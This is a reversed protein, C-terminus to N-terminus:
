VKPWFQGMCFSVLTQILWRFPSNRSPRFDVDIVFFRTDVYADHFARYFVSPTGAQDMGQVVSTTYKDCYSITM